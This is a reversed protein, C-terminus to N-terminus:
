IILVSIYGKNSLNLWKIFFRVMLGAKERSLKLILIM